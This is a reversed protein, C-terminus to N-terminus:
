PDSVMPTISVNPAATDTVGRSVTRAPFDMAAGPTPATSTGLCSLDAPIENTGDWAMLIPAAAGDTPGADVGGGDPLGTGSDVGADTATSNDCGMTVLGAVALVCGLSYGRRTM